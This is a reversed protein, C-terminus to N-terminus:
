RPLAFVGIEEDLRRHEKQRFDYRSVIGMLKGQGVIPLHRIGADNLVRPAKRGIINKM